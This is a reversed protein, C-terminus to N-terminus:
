KAPATQTALKALDFGRLAGEVLDPLRAAFDAMNLTGSAFYLFGVGLVYFTGGISGLLLYRFAAVPARKGGM